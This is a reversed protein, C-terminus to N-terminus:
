DTDKNEAGNSEADGGSRSYKKGLQHIQECFGLDVGEEASGAYGCYRTRGSFDMQHTLFFIGAIIQKHM